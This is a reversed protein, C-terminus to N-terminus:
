CPLGARLAPHARQLQVLAHEDAVHAAADVLAKSLLRLFVLGADAIGAEEFPM